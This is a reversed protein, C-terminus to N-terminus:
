TLLKAAGIDATIIFVGDSRSLLLLIGNRCEPLSVGWDNMLAAAMNSAYEPASSTQPVKMDDM